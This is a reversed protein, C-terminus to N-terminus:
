LEFIRSNPGLLNASASGLPRGLNNQVYLPLLHAEGRYFAEVSVHRIHYFATNTSRGITDAPM